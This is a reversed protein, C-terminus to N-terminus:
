GVSCISIGDQVGLSVSVEDMVDDDCDPILGIQSLIWAKESQLMNEATAQMGRHSRAVRSLFALRGGVCSIVSELVEDTPEDALPGPRQRVGLHFRRLARMSAKPSLDSVSLIQM